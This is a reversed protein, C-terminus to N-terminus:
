PGPLDAAPLALAAAHAAPSYLRTPVGALRGAIVEPPVARPDPQKSGYTFTWLVGPYSPVPAWYTGVLPFAPQLHRRVLAALDPQYLLSGSQAVLLGQSTLLRACASYFQPSFLALGPGKPDPSDVLIVDFTRGARAVYAVGDDIVLEARPDTFADGGVSPLFRRCADVVAGDIEVMTVHEVPHKLVEELTGGDGGGIILVRRPSPHTVLPLHVLMEHYAHEDRETTQVADDLVLMRGFLPSCVIQIRQYASRGDFLVDTVQTAQAVGPGVLDVLWEM